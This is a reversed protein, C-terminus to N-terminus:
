MVVQRGLSIAESPGALPFSLALQEKTCGQDEDFQGHTGQGRAPAEVLSM